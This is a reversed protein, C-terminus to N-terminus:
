QKEVVVITTARVCRLTVNTILQSGSGDTTQMGLLNAVCLTKGEAIHLLWM